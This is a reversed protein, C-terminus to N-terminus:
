DILRHPLAASADDTESNGSAQCRMQRRASADNRAADDGLTAAMETMAAPSLRQQLRHATRRIALRCRPMDADAINQPPVLRDGAGVGLAQQVFLGSRDRDIGFGVDRRANGCFVPKGERGEPNDGVGAVPGQRGRGKDRGTGLAADIDLRHQPRKDAM